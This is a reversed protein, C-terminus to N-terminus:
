KDTVYGKLGIKELKTSCKLAEARDSFKGCRIRYYTKGKVSIASYYADFGKEKLQKVTKEAAGLESISAVQVTYHGSAPKPTSDVKRAVVEKKDNVLPKTEVPKIPKSIVRDPEKPTETLFNNRADDKKTTLKDYFALDPETELTDSANVKSDITHAPESSEQLKITEGKLGLLSTISSPLAGRGAFVGLVFIWGLFFLIFIGWLVISLPGLDIHYRWRKKKQPKDTAM